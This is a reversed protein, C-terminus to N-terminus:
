VLPLYLLIDSCRQCDGPLTTLLFEQSKYLLLGISFTAYLSYVFLGLYFIVLIFVTKVLYHEESIVSTKKSSGRLYQDM